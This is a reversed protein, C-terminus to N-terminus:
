VKEGLQRLKKVAQHIVELALDIEEETTEYSLNFSVASQALSPEV